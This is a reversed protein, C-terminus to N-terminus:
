PEISDNIVSKRFLDVECIKLQQKALRYNASETDDQSPAWLNVRVAKSIKQNRKLCVLIIQGSIWSRLVWSFSFFYVHVCSAGNCCMSFIIGNSFKGLIPLEHTESWSPWFETVIFKIRTAAAHAPQLQHSSLCHTARSLWPQSPSAECLWLGTDRSWQERCSAVSM